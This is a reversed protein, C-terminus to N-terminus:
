KFLTEIRELAFMLNSRTVAFNLRVVGKEGQELGRFRTEKYVLTAGIQKRTLLLNGHFCTQPFLFDM